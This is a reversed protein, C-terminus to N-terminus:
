ADASGAVRSESLRRYLPGGVLLAAALACGFALSLGPEDGGATVTATSAGVAVGAVTWPLEGVATGVLLQGLSVGSVAAACTAVDSPIPAFRSAVVGRIPGATDYYRGVAGRARELFRELRSAPAGRAGGLVRRATLFVPVATATAGALAIPIGLPVGYGHGVVVALPTTPLALAPRLLYLGAVLVGFRVPDATAPEVVAVIRSPSAFLGFGVVAGFIAVAALTRSPPTSM